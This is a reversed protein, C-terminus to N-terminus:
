VSATFLAAAGIFLAGFVGAAVPVAKDLKSCGYVQTGTLEVGYCPRTRMACVEVPNQYLCYVAFVSAAAVTQTIIAGDKWRCATLGLHCDAGIARVTRQVGCCHHRGACLATCLHQVTDAREARAPQLPVCGYFYIIAGEEEVAELFLSCRSGSMVLVGILIISQGAHSWQLTAAAMTWEGAGDGCFHLDAAITGAATGNCFSTASPGGVQTGDATNGVADVGCPGVM